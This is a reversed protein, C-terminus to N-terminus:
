PQIQNQMLYHRFLNYQLLNCDELCNCSDIKVSHKVLKIRKDFDVQKM